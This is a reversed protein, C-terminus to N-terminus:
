QSDILELVMQRLVKSASAEITALFAEKEAPTLLVVIKATRQAEKYPGRRYAPQKM